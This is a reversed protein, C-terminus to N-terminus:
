LGDLVRRLAEPLPASFTMAEGGPAVIELKHAHLFLRRLGRKRWRRLEKATSYKEDGALPMGLERAHIRVQHNRGTHIDAEAYSCRPYRKLLRFDTLADRGDIAANM